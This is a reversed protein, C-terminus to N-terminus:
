NKLRDRLGGSTAPKLIPSLIPRRCGTTDAVDLGLKILASVEHSVLFKSHIIRNNTVRPHGWGRM